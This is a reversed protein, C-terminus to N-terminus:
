LWNWCNRRRCRRCHCSTPQSEENDCCDSPGPDIVETITQEEYVHRPM